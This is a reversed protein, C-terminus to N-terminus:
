DDLDEDEDDADDDDEDDDAEDDDQDAPEVAAADEGLVDPDLAVSHANEERQVPTPQREETLDDEYLTTREMGGM